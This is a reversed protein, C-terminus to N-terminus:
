AWTLHEQRDCSEYGVTHMQQLKWGVGVGARHNKAAARLACSGEGGDREREKKKEFWMSTTRMDSACEFYFM